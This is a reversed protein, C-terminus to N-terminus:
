LGSGALSNSGRGSSNSFGLRSAVGEPTLAIGFSNNDEIPDFSAHVILTWRPLRRVLSVSFTRNEGQDMDFSQAFVIRYKPTLIYRIGYRIILSDVARIRRVNLFISMDPNHDLILGANWQEMQDSDLDYNFNGVFALTDTIQWAAETFVHDGMLSLEPRYDVFQAIPSERVTSGSAYVVETDIRLVDVSRWGGRGDPRMTQFTNRAGFKVVTGDALSEINYDYVPLEQQELNTGAYFVHVMPEFIHRLRHMGLLKSQFNDYNKSFSTAIKVGAAGWLRVSDDNGGFSEFDDDYATIRGVVYPTVNFIGIKTPAQLEQRTDARLVTSESLGGAKLASQFSTGSAIGFLMLSQATTFGRDAPSDNPLNLRMNSVRNESYWTVAGGFLPTGIQHYAIEPIKNTTYGGMPGTINGRTQLLDTQPIFNQLDYKGEFTFATNDEQKKLYILTEHESEAIAERPYYEELFNPDSVWAIEAQMIWNDGLEEHHQARIRGRHETTPAVKLRGGPEDRGDDHLYYGEFNGWYDKKEYDATIGIGPGRQKYVDFLLNVDVGDEKQKGLLSLLDWKTEVTFGKRDSSGIGLGRLPISDSTGSITPWYFFPINGANLTIDDAKIRHFVQGNERQAETVTLKNVGISFHPQRFESTTFRAKDSTWHKASHQRLTQARVYLPVRYKPDWTFMVANLVLARESAFEYFIRPGRVTYNGDTIIVNDELYVSKIKNGEASGSQADELADKEAFIVAKDAKLTVVRKTAPDVHVIKIDGMLLVYSEDEGKKAVLRDFRFDITAKLPPDPKVPPVVPPKDDPKTPKRTITGPLKIKDGPGRIKNRTKQQKALEAPTLLPNVKDLKYANAALNKKHTEYRKIADVMLPNSALNADAFLDTQLKTKGDLVATVLLRKAEQQVPGHGGLTKVKDLYIIVDNVSRGGVTRPKILVVAAESTFGYAGIKITVDKELLLYNGDKSLWQSTKNALLHLDTRIPHNPLVPGTASRRILDESTRANPNSPVPNASKNEDSDQQASALPALALIITAM